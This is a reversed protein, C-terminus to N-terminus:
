VVEVKLTEMYEYIGKASVSVEVSYEGEKKPTMSFVLATSGGKPLYEETMRIVTREEYASVIIDSRSSKEGVGLESPFIFIAFVNEVESELTDIVILVKEMKGLKMSKQKERNNDFGIQFKVTREPRLAGYEVALITQYLSALAVGCFMASASGFVIAQNLSTQTDSYLVNIGLIALLLACLLIVVPREVAGKATLYQYRLQTGEKEAQYKNLQEKIQETDVEETDAEQNGLRQTLEKIKSQLESMRKKREKEDEWKQKPLFTVSIAYIPFTVSILGIALYALILLIQLLADNLRSV